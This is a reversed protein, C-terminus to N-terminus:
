GKWRRYYERFLEEFADAIVSFIKEKTEPSLSNWVALFLRAVSFFIDLM